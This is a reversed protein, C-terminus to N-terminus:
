EDIPFSETFLDPNVARGLLRVEWHLHPGTALGTAGSLGIKQGRGIIQGEEVNFESLHYYLSYLGPLHEIVVSYGTSVRKEALVVKGRGCSFVPTGTPVGFDIGYHLGTSSKGNSYAYVRRDAFFATRRKQTVPLSFIGKHYVASYDVTELITNLREIQEKRKTSTNTKIGTNRADLNVTESVFEKSQILVPLSLVAEEKGHLKYSLTVTFTGPEYWSSLPILAIYQTKESSNKHEADAKYLNAKILTKDGSPSRLEAAAEELITGNTTFRIFVADGPFTKDTYEVSLAKDDSPFLRINTGFVSPQPTNQAQLQVTLLRVSVLISIILKTIIPKSRIYKYM